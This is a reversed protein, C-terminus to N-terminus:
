TDIKLKDVIYGDATYGSEFNELESEFKKMEKNSILAGIFFGVMTVIIFTIWSEASLGFYVGMAFGIFMVIVGFPGVTPQESNFSKIKSKLHEKLEGDGMRNLDSDPQERRIFDTYAAARDNIAENLEAKSAAEQQKESAGNIASVIVIVVIIGVIWIM